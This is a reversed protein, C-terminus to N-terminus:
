HMNPRSEKLIGKLSLALSDLTLKKLLSSSFLFMGSSTIAVFYLFLFRQYRITAALNVVSYILIDSFGKRNDSVGNRLFNFSSCVNTAQFSIRFSM